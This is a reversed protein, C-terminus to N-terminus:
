DGRETWYSDWWEEYMEEREKKTYHKHLCEDSCYYKEWWNVCYWQTMFDGCEDCNRMHESDEQRNIERKWRELNDLLLSRNKSNMLSDWTYVCSDINDISEEFFDQQATM